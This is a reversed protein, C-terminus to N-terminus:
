YWVKKDVLVAAGHISPPAILHQSDPDHVRLNNLYIETAVENVPLGKLAGVDDVFMDTYRDWWFVRVHEFHEAPAIMRMITDHLPGWFTPQGDGNVEVEVASEKLDREGPLSLFLRVTTQEAM